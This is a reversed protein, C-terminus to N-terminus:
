EPQWSLIGRWESNGSSGAQLHSPLVQFDRRCKPERVPPRLSKDPPRLPIVAWGGLDDQVLDLKQSAKKQSRGPVFGGRHYTSEVVNEPARTRIGLHILHGRHRQITKRTPRGSAIKLEPDGIMPYNVHGQTEEIDGASKGHSSVPDVSLGTIKCNRKGFDPQLGAMYRAQHHLGAHLRESPFVSDGLRQRDM